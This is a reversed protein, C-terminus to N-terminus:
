NLGAIKVKLSRLTMLRKLILRKSRHIRLSLLNLSITFVNKIFNIQKGKKQPIDSICEMPQIAFGDGLNYSLLLKIFLLDFVSGKYEEKSIYM